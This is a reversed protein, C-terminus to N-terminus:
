NALVDWPLLAVMTVVAGLVVMGGLQHTLGGVNHIQDSLRPNKAVLKELNSLYADHEILYPDRM